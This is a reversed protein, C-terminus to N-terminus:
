VEGFIAKNITTNVCFLRHLIIGLIFFIIIFLLIFALVIFIKIVFHTKIKLTIIIGIIIGFITGLGITGLTDNLAIDLGSIRAEHFGQRPIGLADKYKCLFM